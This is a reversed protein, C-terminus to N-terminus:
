RMCLGTAGSYYYVHDSLVEEPVLQKENVDRIMADLIGQDGEGAEQLLLMEHISSPILFFAGYKKELCELLGPYLIVSAGNIKVDNSLILFAQGADNCLETLMEETMEETDELFFKLYEEMGVLKEPFLHRTNAVATPFYDQVDGLGSTEWLVRPLRFSMIGNEGQGALVYFVAVLDLIEVYVSTELLKENTRRNMLRLFVNKEIWDRTCITKSIDKNKETEKRIVYVMQEVMLELPIGECFSQYMEDTYFTPACEYDGRHVLVAEKVVGNIKQTEQLEQRYGAGLGEQLMGQLRVLFEEKTMEKKEQM